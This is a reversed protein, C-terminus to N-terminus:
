KIQINQNEELVCGPIKIGAKLAKKVDAKKIEPDKYNLFEKFGDELVKIDCNDTNVSESKRWTIEFETEKYKEGQITNSLYRKLSEIRNEATKQRKAFAMKEAKYAEADANLNKIWLAINRVKEEKEIQLNDLYSSDFLEGTEANVVEDTEPMYFCNMLLENIEYLSAM